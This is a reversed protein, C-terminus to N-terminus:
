LTSVKTDDEPAAFLRGPHAINLTYIALTVMAGDLVNFYVQTSIIRGNWGNSLEITRYIARIFLCTTMFVLAYAMHKLKETCTGRITADYNTEKDSHSAIPSNKTYRLYYEIGCFTYAIIVVLQFVIGALMIHAGLTAGKSDAATAAMGGGVAQIVLSVFDCTCFIISYLKPRLRSYAPGLRQVFKGLIIFIAAVFPTPAIITCTIQIQFPIVLSPSISSWLRASWGLIELFGCLCVTPLLWWMRYKVAQFLHLSTSLGFLAVFIITVYRTPVYHYPSLEAISLTPGGNALSM